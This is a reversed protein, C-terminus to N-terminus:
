KSPAIESSVGGVWGGVNRDGCGDVLSNEVEYRGTTSRWTNHNEGGGRNVCTLAGCDGDVNVEVVVDGCCKGNTMGQHDKLKGILCSFIAGVNMGDNSLVVVVKCMVMVKCVVSNLAWAM